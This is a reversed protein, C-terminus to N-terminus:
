ISRENNVRGKQKLESDMLNHWHHSTSLDLYSCNDLMSPHYCRCLVYTETM